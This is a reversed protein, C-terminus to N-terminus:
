QQVQSLFVCLIETVIECIHLNCSSRFFLMREINCVKRSCKGIVTEARVVNIVFFIVSMLIFLRLCGRTDDQALLCGTHTNARRVKLFRCCIASKQFDFRKCRKSSRRPPVIEARLYKSETMECSTAFSRREPHCPRPKRIHCFCFDIVEAKTKSIKEALEEDRDKRRKKKACRM